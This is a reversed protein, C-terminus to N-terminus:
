PDRSADDKQSEAAKGDRKQRVPRNQTRQEPLSSMRVSTVHGGRLRPTMLLLSWPEPPSGLGRGVSWPNSSICDQRPSDVPTDNFDKWILSLVDTIIVSRVFSM